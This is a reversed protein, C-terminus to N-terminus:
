QRPPQRRLGRRHTYHESRGVGSPIWSDFVRPPAEVLRGFRGVHPADHLTSGAQFRKDLRHCCGDGCQQQGGPQHGAQGMRLQSRGRARGRGGGSGGGGLRALGIHDDDARAAGDGAGACRGGVRRGVLRGHHRHVLDDGRHGLDRLDGVDLALLDELDARFAEVVLAQQLQGLAHGFQQLLRVHVADDDRVAGVGDLFRRVEQVERELAVLRHHYDARHPRTRRQAGIARQVQIVRHQHGGPGLRAALARQHHEVVLDVGATVHGLGVRELGLGEARREAREAIHHFAARQVVARQGARM